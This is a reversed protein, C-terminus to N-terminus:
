AWEVLLRRRLVIRPGLERVWLYMTLVLLLYTYAIVFLGRYAAILAFILASPGLLFLWPQVARLRGDLTLWRWLRRLYPSITTRITMDAYRVVLLELPEMRAGPAARRQVRLLVLVNGAGAPRHRSGARDGLPAARWADARGADPPPRIRGLLRVADRRLHDGNRAASYPSSEHFRESYTAARM